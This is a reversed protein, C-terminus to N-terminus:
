HRSRRRRAFALLATGVVVLAGAAATVPEDVGAGTDPLVDTLPVDAVHGLLFAITSELDQPTPDRYSLTVWARNVVGVEAPVPQAQAVAHVTTVSGEALDALPTCLFGQYVPDCHWTDSTVSVLSMQEPLQEHLFV